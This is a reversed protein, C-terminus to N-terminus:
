GGYRRAIIWGFLVHLGGFGLALLADSWVPPTVAAVAGLALFSLGMVPVVRVSFAGACAVGAGYLLLWVAPLFRIMGASCLMITIVAGALIPPAMAFVFRHFPRSLLANGALRAKRASFGIGLALALFGEGIWVALWARPGSGAKATQMILHAAFAAFFATAGVIMGGVGPVATFSGANEMTDRIFRLNDMAQDHLGIPAAPQVTPRIPRLAGM